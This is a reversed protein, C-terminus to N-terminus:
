ILNRVGTVKGAKLDTVPSGPGWGTWSFSGTHSARYSARRPSRRSRSSSRIRLSRCVQPRDPCTLIWTCHNGIMCSHLRDWLNPTIVTLTSGLARGTNCRHWAADRTSAWGPCGKCRIKGICSRHPWCSPWRRCHTCRWRNLNRMKKSTVYVFRTFSSPTSMKHEDEGPLLLSHSINMQSHSRLAASHKPLDCHFGSCSCRGLSFQWHFARHFSYSIHAKWADQCYLYLWPMM